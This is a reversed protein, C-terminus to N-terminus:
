NSILSTPRGELYNSILKEEHPTVLEGNAISRNSKYNFKNDKEICNEQKLLLDENVDVPVDSDELVSLVMADRLKKGKELVDLLAYDSTDSRVTNPPAQNSKPSEPMEIGVPNNTTSKKSNAINNPCSQYGKKLQKAKDEVVSSSIQNTNTSLKTKRRSRKRTKKSTEEPVSNMSLDFDVRLDGIRTGSSTIIPFYKHVQIKTIHDLLRNIEVHGIIEKNEDNIVLLKLKNCKKLYTEFLSLNTKIHYTIVNSSRTSEPYKSVDAPRCGFM